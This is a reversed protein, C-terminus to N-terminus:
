RLSALLLPEGISACQSLGLKESGAGDISGGRDSVSDDLISGGDASSSGLSSCWSLALEDDGDDVSGGKDADGDGDLDM